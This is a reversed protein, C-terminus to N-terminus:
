MEVGADKRIMKRAADAMEVGWIADIVFIPQGFIGIGPDNMFKGLADMVERLSLNNNSRFIKNFIFNSLAEYQEDDALRYPTGDLRNKMKTVIDDSPVELMYVRGNTRQPITAELQNVQMDM